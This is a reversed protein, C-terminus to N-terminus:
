EKKEEEKKSITRRVRGKKGALYAESPHWSFAAGRYSSETLGGFLKRFILAALMAMGIFPLFVAYALGLIPGALLALAPPVRYYTQGADGPLVGTDAIHVREGSTFNWYTGQRATESGIKRLTLM